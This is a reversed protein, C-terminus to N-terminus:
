RSFAAGPAAPSRARVRFEVSQVCSDPRAETRTVNTTPVQSHRPHPSAARSPSRRPVAAGRPVWLAGDSRIPRRSGICVAALRDEPAPPVPKLRLREAFGEDM